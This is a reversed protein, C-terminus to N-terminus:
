TTKTMKVHSVQKGKEVAICDEHTKLHMHVLMDALKRVIKVMTQDAGPERLFMAQIFVNRADAM